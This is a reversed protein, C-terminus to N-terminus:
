LLTLILIGSMVDVLWRLGSGPLRSSAYGPVLTAPPRPSSSTSKPPRAPPKAAQKSHSKALPATAAGRAEALMRRGWDIRSLQFPDALRAEEVGLRKFVDWMMTVVDTVTGTTCWHCEHCNGGCRMTGWQTQGDLYNLEFSIDALQCLLALLTACTVNRHRNSRCRFVIM